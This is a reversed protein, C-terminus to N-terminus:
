FTEYLPPQLGVTRNMEDLTYNMYMIFVVIIIIITINMM